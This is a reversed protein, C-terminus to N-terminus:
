SLIQNEVGSGINEARADAEQERHQSYRAFSKPSREPTISDSVAFGDAM